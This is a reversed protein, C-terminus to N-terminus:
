DKVNAKGLYPLLKEPIQSKGIKKALRQLPSGMIGRYTLIGIPLKLLEKYGFSALFYAPTKGYMADLGLYPWFKSGLLEKYGKMALHHLITRGYESAMVYEGDTNIEAILKQIPLKLAADKMDKTLYKQAWDYPVKGKPKVIGENKSGKNYGEREEKPGYQEDIYNLIDDSLSSDQFRVIKSAQKLIDIREEKSISLIKVAEDKSSATVIQDKYKFKM